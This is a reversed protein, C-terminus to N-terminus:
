VSEHQLDKHLLNFKIQKRIYGLRDGTEHAMANWPQPFTIAQGGAKIFDLVNENKDDILLVNPKAMLGKDVAADIIIVPFGPAYNQCWWKKGSFGVPADHTVTLLNVKDASANCMSLLDQWWPYPEVSKYFYDGLRIIKEWFEANTLAPNWKKYYDWDTPEKYFRRHVEFAAKHFNAGVGDVDCLITNYM